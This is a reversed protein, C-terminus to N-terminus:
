QTSGKQNEPDLWWARGLEEIVERTDPLLKRVPVKASGEHVSQHCPHCLPVGNRVDTHYEPGCQSRFVVHHAALAPAGDHPSGWHGCILCRHAYRRLVERRWKGQSGSLAGRSRKRPPSAGRFRPFGEPFERAM